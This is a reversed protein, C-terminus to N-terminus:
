AEGTDPLGQQPHADGPRQAHGAGGVRGGQHRPPGRHRPPAHLGESFHDRARVGFPPQRHIGDAM